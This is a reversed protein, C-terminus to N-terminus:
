PRLDAVRELILATVEELLRRNRPRGRYADLNVPKGVVLRVRSPTLWARLVKHTRPGGAIYVPVVPAGSVLALWAVGCRGRRPRQRGANSLGGEPFIVVIRKERLRRLAQRLAAVDWGDRRVAVSQVSEFLYRLWPNAYYSDAILFCPPQGCVATVFAADPSCTHNAVLIAPGAAVKEGERRLAHWLRVYGWVLGLVVFNDFRVGSRKWRWWLVVGLLVGVVVVVM